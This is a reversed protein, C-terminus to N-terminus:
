RSIFNQDYRGGRCLLIILLSVDKKEKLNVHVSSDLEILGPNNITFSILKSKLNM